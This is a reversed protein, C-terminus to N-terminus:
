GRRLRMGIFGLGVGMLAFGTGLPLIHAALDAARANPETGLASASPPPSGTEPRDAAPSPPRSPSQPQLQPQHQPQEQPQQQPRHQNPHEHQPRDPLRAPPPPPLSPPPPEPRLQVPRDALAAEPNVAETVPRGPRQRGAGAASGALQPPRPDDRGDAPRAVAWARPAASARAAASPASACALGYAPAAPLLVACGLAAAAPWRLLCLRTM